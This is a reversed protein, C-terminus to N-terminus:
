HTKESYYTPHPVPQPSAADTNSRCEAIPDPKAASTHDVGKMHEHTTDEFTTGRANRDCRRWRMTHCLGLLIVNLKITNRLM